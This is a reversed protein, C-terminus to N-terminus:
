YNSPCCMNKQAEMLARCCDVIKCAFEFSKDRIIHPKQPPAGGMARLTVRLPRQPVKHGIKLL